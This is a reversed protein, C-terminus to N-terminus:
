EVREATRRVGFQFLELADCDGNEDVKFTLTAKVVKYFWETESRAYVQFAPQGTLGVMLKKDEVSVTFVAGPVLEYKGVYKQMVEVPVEVAKEFSRPQVDVGAMMRMIDEALHDVEGTATNTLLIVATDIERNVLLMAHYGGTQGNHWRTGGDRAVHWGLGMAFDGDALPPQHVQWALEMAEGLENDPPTLAARAFRLLDNVTSRIAGAGALAPIDWNSSLQLDGMHPPALRSLQEPSLTISTSTMDLQQAIRERLLKEYTARGQLALLHGLLGAGLNSYEGKEGPSRGLEHGKLFTYLDEISYEAYPNDPNTIELNDPLRPLGSVHTALDQLTISREGGSPMRANVPLLDAADQDLTVHGQKVADALLVGTFIKSASGIEYVTDGDPARNDQSSLRGYSLVEQEGHHLVGISIGMVIEHDLYPQVLPDIREQLM